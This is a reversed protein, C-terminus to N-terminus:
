TRGEAVGGSKLCVKSHPRETQGHVKAFPGPDPAQHVGDVSVMMAATLKM